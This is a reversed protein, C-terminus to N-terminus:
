GLEPLRLRRRAAIVVGPHNYAAQESAGLSAEESGYSNSVESAGLKVAENVAASLDSMSESSAEVLLISCGPCASHVTEVDLAIEVSWGVNDPAPLATTSGTQSVKKLCGNSATCSPLSYHADFKGLDAEIAPDDFADVIAVTQGSGGSTPPLRVRQGSGGADLGGAPGTSLAGAAKEYPRAGPAGAPAPTLALALCRASDRAM